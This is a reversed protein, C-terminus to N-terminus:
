NPSIAKKLADITYTITFSEGTTKHFILASGTFEFSGSSIGTGNVEIPVDVIERLQTIAISKNGPLIANYPTGHTSDPQETPKYWHLIEVEIPKSATFTVKGSWITGWDLLPLAFVVQHIPQNPHRAPAAKSMVTKQDVVFDKILNNYKNYTSTNNSLYTTHNGVVDSDNVGFVQLGFYFMFISIIVLLITVFILFYSHFYPNTLSSKYM